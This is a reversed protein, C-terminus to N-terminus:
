SDALWVKQPEYRLPQKESSWATTFLYFKAFSILSIQLIVLTIIHMPVATASNEHPPLPLLPPAFSNVSLDSENDYIMPIFMAYLM